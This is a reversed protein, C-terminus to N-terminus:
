DTTWKNNVRRWIGAPNGDQLEIPLLDHNWDQWCLPRVFRYIADTGVSTFRSDNSAPFPGGHQMAACVEVGTPVGNLIIRGTRQQLAELLEAYQSLEGDEAMVTITLQGDLSNVVQEVEERSEALVLLSYPGFIEEKLKENRVFDRASVSVLTPAAQNFAATGAVESRAVLKVGEEKLIAGSLSQYNSCIGATLMTGSPAEGFLRALENLLVTTHEDQIAIMLGPNTCFQGTGLTVSAAYKSALDQPRSKVAEPLFLVPNISGMEAFLPIPQERQQALRTLAMGGKFSGTFSVAKTAPHKVLAEGIGFGTDYLLSFVGDPMGTAKAAKVIAAGVLASTGPHASHAKVIVPCGAALASATDGGAVSFALPFNSAGFVVVPGLPVFMKRLDPRPLPQRDPLASDIVAQVWSGEEVLDAFMNLQGITRGTEGKIRREPLGSEAAARATLEEGLAAIESAITRLFKARLSRDLQRYPTFARGALLLSAEVDETSAPYFTGELTEGTSANIASFGEAVSSVFRNAIINRGDM